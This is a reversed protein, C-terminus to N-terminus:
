RQDLRALYAQAAPHDPAYRLAQKWARRAAEERGSRAYLIGLNIWGDVYTSDRALIDVFRAVAAEDEGRLLHLVAVNNQFELNDPDLTLAVRYAHMADNYRGAKRLASGLGAHVYPDEPNNRVMRELQTIQAQLARLEEARELLSRGEEERGTRIFAQGLNYYTPHHWPWAQLVISLYPIAEEPQGTKVLLSGILYQADLSQPNIALAHRAQDLAADLEGADDLLQALSVYAATYSSDAALAQEFAMRASDVVGLERYARGLGHWAHPSGSAEIERRYYGVATRFDYARAAMNGLNNWVGRYDPQLDLVQRYAAEAEDFRLMESYIRGRMFAVHPNAEHLAAASDALALAAEFEHVALAQSSAALWQATARDMMVPGPPEKSCGATGILVVGLVLLSGPVRCGRGFVYVM